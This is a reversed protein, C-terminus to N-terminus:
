LKVARYYYYIEYNGGEGGEGGRAQIPIKHTPHSTRFLGHYHIIRKSTYYM